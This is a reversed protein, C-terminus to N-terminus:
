LPQRSAFGKDADHWYLVAPETLQWCLLAQRGEIVAPFDLLGVELDKIELGMCRIQEIGQRVQAVADRLRAQRFEIESGLSHGDGAAREQLDILAERALDARKNQEVLVSLIERLYPIAANAEEVSWIKRM